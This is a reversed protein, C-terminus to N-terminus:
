NLGIVRTSPEFPIMAARHIDGRKMAGEIEKGGFEEFLFVDLARPNELQREREYAVQVTEKFLEIRERPAGPKVDALDTNYLMWLFGRANMYFQGDKEKFATKMATSVATRRTLTCQVASGVLYVTPIADAPFLDFADAIARETLTERLVESVVARPMMMLAPGDTPAIMGDAIADEFLISSSHM